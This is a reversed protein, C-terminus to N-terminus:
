LGSGTGAAFCNCGDAVWENGVKEQLEVGQEQAVERHGAIHFPEPPFRSQFHIRCYKSGPQPRAACSRFYGIRLDTDWIMGSTKDNCVATPGSGKGDIICAPVRKFLVLDDGAAIDASGQRLLRPQKEFGEAQHHRRFQWVFASAPPTPCATSCVCPNNCKFLWLFAM